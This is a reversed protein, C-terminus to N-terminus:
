VRTRNGTASGVGEKEGEVHELGKFLFSTEQTRYIGDAYEVGRPFLVQQLRQKQDLSCREWVGAANLLLDEAFDLVADIETEASRAQSLNDEAEAVERELPIRMEDFEARTLTQQYVLAERLKRKREKLEDLQRELKRALEVADAQKNNWVDTVVKHFLRLYTSDPQQQRVFDLFGDHIVEARVNVPSSCSKQQCHYYLYKVGMKGTSPSATLPKHCQACRVFGRLPFENRNRKHPTVARRRGALVEQVRDFVDRSVIPIFNGQATIGWQDVELIGAYRPNRLMRDFTEAGLPKGKRSRLGEVQMRSRVQVKTHLATAYLEFAKKVLPARDPDHLLTKNNEADRGNTYGLPAKFTWRGGELRTKMGAVSREARLENDLQPLASLIREVAKEYPSEGLPTQVCRLKIGLALLATRLTDHDVGNRAFRDLAYVVVYEPRPKGSHCFQLMEQLQTRDTTKASEGEERFVRLLRWGNTVCFEQCARLQTELSAGQLQRSTSVRVYIVADISTVSPPIPLPKLPKTMNHLICRFVDGRLSTSRM